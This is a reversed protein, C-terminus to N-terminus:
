YWTGEEDTPFDPANGCEDPPPEWIGFYWVHSGYIWVDTSVDVQQWKNWEGAFQGGPLQWVLDRESDWIAENVVLWYWVM